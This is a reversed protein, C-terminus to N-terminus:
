RASMILQYVQECTETVALFKGNTTVVVCHVSRPFSRELDAPMPARLSTVQDTNVYYSQNDPGHLLMFHSAILLWLSAVDGVARM